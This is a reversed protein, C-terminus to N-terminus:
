LWGTVFMFVANLLLGSGLIGIVSGAILMPMSVALISSSALVIAIQLAASAAGFWASRNKALARDDEFRRAKLALEKKGEGTSPDTEYRAIMTKDSAIKAEIAARHSQVVPSNSLNGLEDEMSDVNEQKIEQKISKAQYFAWTDNASLTDNLIRSSNSNSLMAALALLAACCSIVVSSRGKMIAEGESRSLIKGNKDKLM